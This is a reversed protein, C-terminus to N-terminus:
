LVNFGDERDLLIIRKLKGSADKIFVLDAMSSIASYRIPLFTLTRLAIRRPRYLGGPLSEAGVLGLGKSIVKSLSQSLLNNKDLHLFRL